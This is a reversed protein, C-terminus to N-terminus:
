ILMVECMTQTTHILNALTPSNENEHTKLSILYNYHFINTILSNKENNIDSDFKIQIFTFIMSMFAYMKINKRMDM